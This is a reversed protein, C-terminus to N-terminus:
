RKLERKNLDAFTRNNVYVSIPCVVQKVLSTRAM